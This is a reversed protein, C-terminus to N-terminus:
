LGGSQEPKAHFQHLAKGDFTTLKFTRRHGIAFNNQQAFALNTLEEVVGHYRIGHM